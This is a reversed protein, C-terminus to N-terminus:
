YMELDHHIGSKKLHDRYINKQKFGYKETAHIYKVSLIITCIIDLTVYLTLKL